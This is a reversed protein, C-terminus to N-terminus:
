TRHANSAELHTEPKPVDAESPYWGHIGSMAYERDAQRDHDFVKLLWQREPHYDSTGFWLGKPTVCRVAREGRYNTYDLWVPSKATAPVSENAGTSPNGTM